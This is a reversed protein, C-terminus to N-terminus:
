AFVGDADKSASRRPKAESKLKAIARQLEAGDMQHPEKESAEEARAFVGAARLLATGAASKAPAAAKPDQCVSVLANYAIRIGNTAVEHQFWDRAEEPTEDVGGAEDAENPDVM